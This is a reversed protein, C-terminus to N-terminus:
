RRFLKEEGYLKKVLWSSSNERLGISLETPLPLRDGMQKYHETQLIVNVVCQVATLM